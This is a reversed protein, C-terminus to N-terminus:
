SALWQEFLLAGFQSQQLTIARLVEVIAAFGTVERAVVIFATSRRTPAAEANKGPIPPGGGIGVPKPPEGLMPPGDEM